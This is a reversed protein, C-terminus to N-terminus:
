QHEGSASISDWIREPTSDDSLLADLAARRVRDRQAPDLYRVPSVGDVRALMLIATQWGLDTVASAHDVRARYSELFKFFAGRFEAALEPRAISKLALHHGFFALDFVASGVRAVEFDLVWTSGASVLVNKPSFDGHVLCERPTQIGDICREIVTSLQPYIGAVTRHFPNVRLQEFTLDDSFEALLAFDGWTAAHWTGLVDGLTHAVRNIDAASAGESLLVRRWNVMDSSAATMTIVCAEEDIDVIQPVNDPTIRQLQFMMAAETLSRKPNARWDADVLLEALAQKVVWRHDSGEVLYVRASVGDALAAVTAPAGADLGRAALYDLVDDVLVPTPVSTSTM